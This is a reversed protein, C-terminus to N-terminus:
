TRGITCFIRYIFLCLNWVVLMNTNSFTTFVLMQVNVICIIEVQRRATGKNCSNFNTQGHTKLHSTIYAASLMKGCISCTVKGEHRIMHSRLRDKWHFEEQCQEEEETLTRETSAGLQIM